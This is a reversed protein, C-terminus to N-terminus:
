HMEARQGFGRPDADHFLVVLVVQELGVLQKSLVDTAFDRKYPRPLIAGGRAVDFHFCTEEAVVVAWDPVDVAFDHGSHVGIVDSKWLQRSIEVRPRGQDPRQVVSAAYPM